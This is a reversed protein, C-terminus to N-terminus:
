SATLKKTLLNAPLVYVEDVVKKSLVGRLEAYLNERLSDMFREIEDVDSDSVVLWFKYRKGDIMQRARDCKNRLRCLVLLSGYVKLRNEERIRRNVHKEQDRENLYGYQTKLGAIGRLLQTEEILIISDDAPLFYDCSNCKGLEVYERMDPMERSEGDMGFAVIQSDLPKGAIQITERFQDLSM